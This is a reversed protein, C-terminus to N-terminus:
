PDSPLPAQIEPDSTPPPPHIEGGSVAGAKGELIDLKTRLETIEQQVTIIVRWRRTFYITQVHETLDRLMRVREDLPRDSLWLGRAAAVYRAVLNMVDMRTTYALAVRQWHDVLWITTEDLQSLWRDREGQLRSRPPDPLESQIQVKELNACLALIDLVSDGFRDRSDHAAQIRKGRAALRPGVTLGILVSTTVSVGIPVLVSNAWISMGGHHRSRIARVQWHDARLRTVLHTVVATALLPCRRVGISSRTLALCVESM